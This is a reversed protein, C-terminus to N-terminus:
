TQMYILVYLDLESCRTKHKTASASKDEGQGTQWPEYSFTRLDKAIDLMVLMVLSRVSFLGDERWRFLSPFNLFFSVYM